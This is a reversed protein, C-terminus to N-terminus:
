RKLQRTFILYKPTSRGSLSLSFLSILNEQNVNEKLDHCTFQCIQRIERRVFIQGAGLCSSPAKSTQYPKPAKWEVLVKSFNSVSAFPVSIEQFLKWFYRFRNFERIAFWEVSFKLFEPLLTSHFSFKGSFNKRFNPYVERPQGRTQFHRFITMVAAILRFISNWESRSTAPFEFRFNQNFPFRGKIFNPLNFFNGPRVQRM